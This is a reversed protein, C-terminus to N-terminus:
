HRFYRVGTFIMVLGCNNAKDIVEQDRVSGGPQIIAVAGTTAIRELSDPFPFFADSAIVSGALNLNRNAAKSIALDVADIRSMQAAGIGLSMSNACFIVANSKLHKVAEWAFLLDRQQLKTPHKDTVVRCENFTIQRFNREQLIFAGSSIHKMEYLDDSSPPMPILVRVNPKSALARKAASTFSPAVVVEVFVNLIEVATSEDVERNFAVIGGFASLSDGRFAKKYAELAADGLALGCPIAHKVIVCATEKFSSVCSWAADADVLNNYSLDKGQLLSSHAVGGEKLSSDFYLAARQHANEGYRLDQAKRLSLFLHPEFEFQCSSRHSPFSKQFYDIFYASIAHDYDAILRFAKTAMELRFSYDVGGEKLLQELARDYDAPDVLVLVDEYNKAASRLLTAGGIDINEILKEHDSSHELLVEKFPYLNVVVVNIASIGHMSLDRSHDDRNSKALIAAHIKPHLTKFRGDLIEPFGTWDEVTESKLNNQSLLAATGSSSVLKANARELMAKAFSVIGSKDSVSLLVTLSIINKEM